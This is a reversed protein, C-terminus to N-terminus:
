VSVLRIIKNRFNKIRKLKTHEYIAAHLQTLRSTPITKERRFFTLSLKGEM